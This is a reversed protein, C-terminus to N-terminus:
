GTDTSGVQSWYKAQASPPTLGHWHILTPEDLHNELTLKFRGGRTLDLAAGRHELGLVAAPKGDVELTRRGAVLRPARPWAAYIAGGAAAVALVGAGGLIARRRTIGSFAM